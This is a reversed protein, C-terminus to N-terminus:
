ILSTFVAGIVSVELWWCWRGYQLYLMWGILSWWVLVPYMGSLLIWLIASTCCVAAASYHVTGELRLRFAPSVGVFVMGACSLFVLFRYPEESIDLWVPLLIMGSLIMFTQFLWGFRGSLYYTASLSEPVGFVMICGVVYLLSALALILVIAAMNGSTM